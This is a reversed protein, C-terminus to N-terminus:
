AMSQSLATTKSATACDQTSRARDSFLVAVALAAWIDKSVGYTPGPAKKTGQVGIKDILAQRINGDKAKMSGCLHIKVERRYIYEVKFGRTELAHSFKGLWVCTEFVEKGVPMGYCAIMEIAAVTANFSFAECMKLFEGNEIIGKKIISGGRFVVYATQTTGPDIALVASVEGGGFKKGTDHM